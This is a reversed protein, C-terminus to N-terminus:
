FRRRRFILTAALLMVAAYGAAYLIRLSLDPPLGVANVAPDRLDFMSLNPTLYYLVQLFFQSALGGTRIRGLYDMFDPIWHSLRGAAFVVSTLVASLIPTSASSFMVAVAIIVAVEVMSFCLAALLAGTIRGGHLQHWFVAGGSPPTATRPMPAEGALVRYYVLFGASLLAMCVLATLVLGLYKGLIFEGRRVPKSLITYVTRKDLEKYILGTGVFVSIMVGLLSVATLGTNVIVHLEDGVSIEGLFRSFGVAALGVVLLLYLVRDRVAERFTNLALAWVRAIM